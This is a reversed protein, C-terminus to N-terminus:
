ILTGKNSGGRRGLPVRDFSVIFLLLLGIKIPEYPRPHPYFVIIVIYLCTIDVITEHRTNIQHIM